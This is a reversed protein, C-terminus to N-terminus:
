MLGEQPPNLVPSKMEAGWRVVLLLLLVDLLILASLLARINSLFAGRIAERHMKSIRVERRMTLDPWVNVWESLTLNDHFHHLTM